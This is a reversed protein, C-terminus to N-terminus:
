DGIGLVFAAYADALLDLMPVFALDHDEVIAELMLCPVVRAAMADNKEDVNDTRHAERGIDIVRNQGPQDRQRREDKARRAAVPPPLFAELRHGILVRRGGSAANTALM